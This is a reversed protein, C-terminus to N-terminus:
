QIQNKLHVQNPAFRIEIPNVICMKEKGYLYARAPTLGKLVITLPMEKNHFAHINDDVKVGKELLNM